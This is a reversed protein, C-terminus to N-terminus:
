AKGAIADAVIKRTSDLMADLPEPPDGEFSIVAGFDKALACSVIMVCALDKMSGRWVLSICCDRGAAIEELDEDGDTVEDADEYFIEFGIEEEGALVCPSFGEDEFPTFDPDLSMDFGLADISAQLQDRSPVRSREVFAMQTNSM